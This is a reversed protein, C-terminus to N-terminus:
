DSPKRRRPVMEKLERDGLKLLVGGRAVKSPRQRLENDVLIEAAQELALLEQAVVGALSEEVVREEVCLADDHDM